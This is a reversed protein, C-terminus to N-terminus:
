TRRTDPASSPSISLASSSGDADAHAVDDPKGIPSLLCSPSGDRELLRSQELSYRTRRLFSKVGKAHERAAVEDHFPVEKLTVRGIRCGNTLATKLVELPWAERTARAILRQFRRIKLRNNTCKLAGDLVIFDQNYKPLWNSQFHRM